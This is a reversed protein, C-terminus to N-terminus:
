DYAPFGVSEPRFEELSGLVELCKEVAGVDKRTGGDVVWVVGCGARWGAEVGLPADEFVVADRPDVGLIKAAALFTDPAPKSHQVLPHDGTIIHDSFHSLLLSHHQTKLTFAPTLSSTAIAMPVNHKKLHSLLKMVGPLTQCNPMMKEHLANKEAIYEEPTLPIGTMEVLVKASEWERRGMMKSKIEWTLEVGYRDLISQTAETFIHETNLLLGDMDFLAAKYQKM